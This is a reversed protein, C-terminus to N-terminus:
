APAAYVYTRSSEAELPLIGDNPLGEVCARGNDRPKAASLRTVADDDDALRGECAVDIPLADGAADSAAGFDARRSDTGGAESVRRMPACPNALLVAACAVGGSSNLPLLLM